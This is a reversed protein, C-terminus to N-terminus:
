LVKKPNAYIWAPGFSGDPYEHHEEFRLLEYEYVDFGMGFASGREHADRLSVSKSVPARMFRGYNVQIAIVERLFDM